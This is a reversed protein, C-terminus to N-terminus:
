RIALTLNSPTCHVSRDEGTLRVPIFRADHFHVSNMKCPKRHARTSMYIFPCKSIAINHGIVLGFILRRRLM